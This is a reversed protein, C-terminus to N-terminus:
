RGESERVIKVCCIVNLPLYAGFRIAFGIEYVHNAVTGEFQVRM